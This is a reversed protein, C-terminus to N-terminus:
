GKKGNDEKLHNIYEQQQAIVQDKAAIIDNKNAIIQDKMSIALDKSECDKCTGRTFSSDKIESESGKLLWNLDDTDCKSIILDYDVTGRSKWSSITNQKVGLFDSLETDTRFNHM